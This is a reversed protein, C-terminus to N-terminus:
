KRFPDNPTRRAGEVTAPAANTKPTKFASRLLWHRKLGQILDDTHVIADSVSKVINTNAQVQTNLNSTINALSDLSRSLEGVLLALNTDTNALLTNANTLAGALQAPAGPPLVWEGLAGPGRLQASISALNESVPRANAAVVNLNSTASASNQLVQALENTLRLVNPLAKEVQDMVRELRETVAPSEAPVLWYPAAGKLPKYFAAAKSRAERNLAALAEVSNVGLENLRKLESKFHDADLIGAAVKNTTELVTPVGASGKTIELVRGGLFDAAAAKVTSDTLIYGFYPTRVRFNVTVGYYAWPDNAEVGTIEGVKFGMLMVPDGAKIGTATNLCTQYDVKQLFWGKRAATNYIYYAFGAALLVTALLVFWGVAREMRSLRTRLQPTLDQLAM